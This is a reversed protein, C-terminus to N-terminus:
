DNCSAKCPLIVILCETLNRFVIKKSLSVYTIQIIWQNTSDNFWQNISQYYLSRPIRLMNSLHNARPLIYGDALSIDFLLLFQVSNWTLLILSIIVILFPTRLRFIWIFVLKCFRASLFVIKIDYSIAITIISDIQLM